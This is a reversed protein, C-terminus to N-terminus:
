FVVCRCSGEDPKFKKDNKNIMRSQYVVQKRKNINGNLIESKMPVNAEKTWNKKQYISNILNIIDARTSVDIELFDNNTENLLKTSTQIECMHKEKQSKLSNLRQIRSENAKEQTELLALKVKKSEIEANLRKKYEKKEKLQNLYSTFKNSHEKELKKYIQIETNLGEKCKEYDDKQANLENELVQVEKWYGKWLEMKIFNEECKVCTNLFKGRTKQTIRKKQICKSCYSFGCFGSTLM